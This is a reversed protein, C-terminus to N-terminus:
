ELILAAGWLGQVGPAARPPDPHQLQEQQAALHLIPHQVGPGVGMQGGGVGVWFLCCRDAHKNKIECRSADYCLNLSMVCNQWWNKKKGTTFSALSSCLASLKLFVVPNPSEHLFSVQKGRAGTPQQRGPCSFHYIKNNKGTPSILM